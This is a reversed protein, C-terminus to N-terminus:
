EDKFNKRKHFRRFPRDRRQKNRSKWTNKMKRTLLSMEDNNESEDDDSENNLAKFTNLKWTDLSCKVKVKSSIFM